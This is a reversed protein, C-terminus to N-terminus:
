QFKSLFDSGLKSTLRKLIMFLEELSPRIQGINPDDSNMNLTDFVEIFKVAAQMFLFTEKTQNEQSLYLYYKLISEKISCLNRGLFKTKHYTTNKWFHNWTITLSSRLSDITNRSTNPSKQKTLQHSLKIMAITNRLSTLWRLCYM